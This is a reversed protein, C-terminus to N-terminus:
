SGEAAVKTDAWVKLLRFNGGFARRKLEEYIMSCKMIESTDLNGDAARQECNLYVVKLGDIPTVDTRAAESSQSPVAMVPILVVVAICALARSM